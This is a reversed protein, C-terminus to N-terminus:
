FWLDSDVSCDFSCRAQLFTDRVCVRLVYSPEVCKPVLAEAARLRKGDWSRDFMKCLWDWQVHVLQGRNLFPTPVRYVSTGGSALNGDSYHAGPKKLVDYSVWVCCIDQRKVVALMPTYKTFFLPVFDHIPLGDIQKNARRQQAYDAAVTSFKLGRRKVENLSLIGHQRISPVNEVPALYYLQGFDDPQPSM